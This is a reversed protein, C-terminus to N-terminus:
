KKFVEYYGLKNMDNKPVMDTFFNYSEIEDFNGNQDNDYKGWRQEIDQNIVERVWIEKEKETGGTAFTKAIQRQQGKKLKKSITFRIEDTNNIQEGKIM